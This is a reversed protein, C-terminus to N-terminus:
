GTCASGKLTFVSPNANTGSYTAQFGFSVNGGAPIGANYSMNTATVGSGSQTITANWANTVAQNGAFTWKLSWGNVAAAGRAEVLQGRRNRDLM